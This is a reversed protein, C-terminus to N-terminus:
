WLFKPISRQFSLSKLVMITSNNGCGLYHCCNREIIRHGTLTFIEYHMEFNVDWYRLKTGILIWIFNISLLQNILKMLKEKTTRKLKNGQLKNTLSNVKASSEVNQIKKCNCGMPHIKMIKLLLEKGEPAFQLHLLWLGRLVEKSLREERTQTLLFSVPIM